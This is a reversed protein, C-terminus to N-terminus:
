DFINNVNAQIATSDDAWQIQKFINLDDAYILIHSHDTHSQIDNIFLLFLLPSLNSGQSIGSQVACKSNICGEYSVFQKRNM